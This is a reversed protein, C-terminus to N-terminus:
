GQETQVHLGRNGSRWTREAFERATADDDCLLLARPPNGHAAYREVDREFSWPWTTFQSVGFPLSSRM